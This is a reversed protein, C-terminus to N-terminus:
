PLPSLYQPDRSIFNKCRVAYEFLGHLAARYENATKQSIHADLVRRDLFSQVIGADLNELYDVSCAEFFRRLRGIETEASKKKRNARLHESYEQLIATADTRTPLRLMGQVKNYETQTLRAVAVRRNETHLSERVTRSGVCYKLWWTRGRRYVSAM